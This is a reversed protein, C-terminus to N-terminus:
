RAKKEANQSQKRCKVSAPDDACARNAGVSCGEDAYGDCDNDLGDGCVETTPSLPVCTQANGLVCAPVSNACLGVGCTLSGLDEDILGNCNNDSGDCTEGSPALPECVVPSGSFCAPVTNFCAGVGCSLSDLNEDVFGDCDNDKGDCTEAEAICSPFVGSVTGSVNDSNPYVSLTLTPNDWTVSHSYSGLVADGQAQPAAHWPASVTEGIGGVLTGTAVANRTEVTKTIMKMDFTAIMSRYGNPCYLDFTEESLLPGGVSGAFIQLKHLTGGLYTYWVSYSPATHAVNYLVGSYSQCVGSRLEWTVHFSQTGSAPTWNRVGGANTFSATLQQSKFETKESTALASVTVTWNVSDAAAKQPAVALAFALAIAAQRSTM